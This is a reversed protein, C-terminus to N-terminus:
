KYHNNIDLLHCVKITIDESNDNVIFELRYQRGCRVSSIGKKDGVLVEYNLSKFVYLDEIREANALIVVAKQYSRVVEPQFRHKKDNTKGNFYLDSLYEKDFVINM